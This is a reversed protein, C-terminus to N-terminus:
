VRGRTASDVNVNWHFKPHEPAFSELTAYNAINVLHEANGTKNYARLELSLRTRYKKRRDPVGYRCQGVALRKSMKNVFERFSDENPLKIKSPWYIEM